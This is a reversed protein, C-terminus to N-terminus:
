VSERGGACRSIIPGDGLKLMNGWWILFLSGFFRGGGWTLFDYRRGWLDESDSPLDDAPITHQKQPINSM